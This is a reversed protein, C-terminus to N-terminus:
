PFISKLSKLTDLGSGKVPKNHKPTQFALKIKEIAEVEHQTLGGGWDQVEM